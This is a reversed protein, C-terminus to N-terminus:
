RHRHLMAMRRFLHLLHLCLWYQHHRHLRNEYRHNKQFKQFQHYRQNQLQLLSIDLPQRLLFFLLRM